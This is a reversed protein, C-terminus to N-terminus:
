FAYNHIIVNEFAVFFLIPIQRYIPEHMNTCTEKFDKQFLHFYASQVIIIKKLVKTIDAQKLPTPFNSNLSSDNVFKYYPSIIDM